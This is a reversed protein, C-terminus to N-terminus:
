GDILPYEALLAVARDYPDEPLQNVVNSLGISVGLIVTLTAITIVAIITCLCCFKRNGKKREREMSSFFRTSESGSPHPEDFVNHNRRSM